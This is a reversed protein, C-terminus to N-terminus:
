PPNAIMYDFTAGSHRDNSLTSGFLVNEADRGDESTSLNPISRRRLAAFPVRVREGRMRSRDTPDAPLDRIM